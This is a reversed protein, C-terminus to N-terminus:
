SRAGGLRKLPKRRAGTFSRTAWPPVLQATKASPQSGVLAADHFHQDVSAKALSGDALSAQVAHEGKPVAETECCAHAGGGSDSSTDSDKRSGNRGAGLDKGCVACTLPPPEAAVVQM